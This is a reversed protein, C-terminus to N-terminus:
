LSMRARCRDNSAGMALTFLILLALWPLSDILENESSPPTLL